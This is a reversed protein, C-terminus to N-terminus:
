SVYSNLRKQLADSKLQKKIVETAMNREAIMQDIEEQFEYYYALASHIQGLSIHPFQFHLEEPSWGHAIKNQILETIKFNTGVIIPIGRDNIEIHRFGTRASQAM